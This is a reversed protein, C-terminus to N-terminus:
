APKKASGFGSTVQSVFEVLTPAVRSLYPGTLSRVHLDKKLQAFPSYEVMLFVFSLLVMMRVAGLLAGGIRNSTGSDSVKLMKILIMRFIKAVVYLAVLAAGFAIAKASAENLFTHLTLYQGLPNYLQFTGLLSVAYAAFRLLEQFIGSKYGKFLGWLLAFLALWDVWTLGSFFEKVM